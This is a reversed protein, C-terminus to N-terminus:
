TLKNLCNNEANCNCFLTCPLKSSNCNCRLTRCPNKDANCNCRILKLVCDPALKVGCPVTTPLLIKLEENKTYGYETPDLAPPDYSTASKWIVTQLHARKVNEAFAETTPPLTPLKPATTVGNGFKAAWMKYRMESMSNAKIKGNYCSTIFGTAESIVDSMQADVCGMKSLSDPFAILKKLAIAKGIGFFTPVTDCGSLAHAALLGPIIPKHAEVTAKIDIVSREQIPSRMTFENYLNEEFYHYLLLLFVDTDDAVVNITNSKMKACLIAQQVIINDAEEHSTSIDRRHIIVGKHIETPANNTGTIVLKNVSTHGHFSQDKIVNECIMSTLQKKNAAVTLIAKQSPLPMNETLQYVRSAECEREDRTSAKTSYDRYRDFVLYVDCTRLQRQLYSKFNSIYDSVVGKAPWHVVWLVASGDLITAGHTTADAVRSSELRSLRNKLDAKSKCIRMKGSDQFMSTPVPSLEHSMVDQIDIDRSSAQIGIVRSYIVTTDYLKKSGIKIHKKGDAITKVGKSITNHFGAPWGSEYETMKKKGIDVADHVTVAGDAIQGSIINVISPPHLDPDLPNICLELKKRIADRDAADAEIRAKREEKHIEQTAEEEDGTLSYVDQQLRSCIHLGLAWTKLTEPKLTIGIIGGPGHGYRMFTTEIYMDSWIGNWLGPIHRMVHEGKMFKSIQEEQLSEMSRLYYLGYRAYNVHGSTFFYPLMAKVAVLHLPWDGEREARVYLMMIFVAKILCEVWLKSTKSKSAVQELAAQLDAMNQIGDNSITKRLLEEVIIRLARINQPFKKGTLMKAVGSFATSMLESLGSGDMLTGVAGVFSMLMHMGGLRIIVDSFTDQHSWKMDVAVKYLQQDSTFVLNKQGRENTLRMGEHMATMMTDPDAPPMDILPLYVAQTKPKLSQGTERSLKTNFGSFEPCGEETTVENFFAFDLENARGKSLVCSCLVKLPLVSKKASDEPMPVRKPGQYRQTTIEFDIPKSLDAKTARPITPISVENPVDVDCKPQSILMALSHTTVKGNQSSIDADFNDAVVQILGSNSEHIGSLQITRSAALAASKKFRLIEDYSCTVRFQYMQNLLSKSDRMLNGLAVQLSTPSKSIANTVINGILLAPLTHSLSPSLKALFDMLTTSVHKSITEKTIRIDYHSRETELQKVENCIIKSIKDIDVDQKTDDKDNVLHLAASSNNKFVIINALGPSTLIAISEGFHDGIKKVLSRRQEKGGYGLYLNLLEVSNWIRSKDKSLENIVAEFAADHELLEVSGEEKRSAYVVSRSSMFSTMCNVHYRGDAAHLDSLASNVRERVDHALEDNRKSCADLISEKFTKKGPNAQATRCLVSNRWRNPHKRDREVECADGCFLCHKKFDFLPAGSRRRSKPPERNDTASNDAERKRHRRLHETSTYTSVCNKHCKVFCDPNEELQREIEIHLDDGYDKSFKLITKIRSPGAEQLKHLSTCNFKWEFICKDAEGDM